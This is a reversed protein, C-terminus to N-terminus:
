TSATCEEEVKEVQGCFFIVGRRRAVCFFLGAFPRGM